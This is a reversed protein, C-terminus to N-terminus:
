DLPLTVPFSVSSRLDIGPLTLKKFKWFKLEKSTKPHEPTCIGDNPSFYDCGGHNPPETDTLQAWPWSNLEQWAQIGSLDQHPIDHIAPQHTCDSSVLARTPPLTLIVTSKSRTVNDLLRYWLFFFCIKPIQSPGAKQYM